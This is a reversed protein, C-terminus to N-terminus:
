SDLCLDDTVKVDSGDAWTPTGTRSSAEQMFFPYQLQQQAVKEDLDLHADQDVILQKHVHM